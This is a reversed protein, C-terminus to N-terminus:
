RPLSCWPDLPQIVGAASSSSSAGAQGKSAQVSVKARSVKESIIQLRHSVVVLLLLNYVYLIDCTARLTEKGSEDRERRELFGPSFLIRPETHCGDHLKCSGTPFYPIASVQRSTKPLHRSTDNAGGSVVSSQLTWLRVKCVLDRHSDEPRAQTKPAASFAPSVLPVSLVPSFFILRSSLHFDM